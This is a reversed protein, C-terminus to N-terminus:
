KEFPRRKPRDAEQQIGPLNMAFWRDLNKPRIQKLKIIQITLIWQCQVKKKWIKM